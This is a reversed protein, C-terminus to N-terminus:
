PQRRAPVGCSGRARDGIDTHGM